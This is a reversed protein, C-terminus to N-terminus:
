VVQVIEEVDRDVEDLPRGGREGIANRYYSSEAFLQLAKIRKPLYPHGEFYEKFRGLGEQLEDFQEMYAELNTEDAGRTGVALKLMSQYAVDEDGCCLLGARDCTIEGRRSWANLAMQAPAVAWKVFSAVGQTLFQAATHYVIHNNQLHGCEHGLVFRLQEDDFADVLASNLIIFAETDTGYTGANLVPNQSVYLTPPAIDLTETCDVLSEYLSPFQRRGVEVSKGLLENKEMSKWFRVASEAVLRVPTAKQIQRLVRIDGSFAYEGFGTARDRGSEPAKKREVYELFDFNM